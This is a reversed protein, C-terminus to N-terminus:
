RFDHRLQVGDNIAQLGVQGPPQDDEGAFVVAEDHARVDVLKCGDIRGLTGVLYGPQALLQEVLDFRQSTGSDRRNVTKCHPATELQHHRQVIADRQRALLSYESQGLHFQTQM